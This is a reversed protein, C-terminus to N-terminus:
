QKTYNKEGLRTFVFFFCCSSPRAYEFLLSCLPRRMKIALMGFTLYSECPYSRSGKHVPRTLSIMLDDANRPLFMYQHLVSKQPRRTNSSPQLKNKTWKFSQTGRLVEFVLYGSPHSSISGVSLSSSPFIRSPSHGRGWRLVACSTCHAFLNNGHTREYDYEWFFVKLKRYTHVRM